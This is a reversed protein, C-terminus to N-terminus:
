EPEVQELTLQLFVLDLWRGFKHGVQRFHAVQVFGLREHFRLSGVNDADVGAIMVHYGGQRAQEILPGMLATGLGTAQVDPAIYVSHEVTHRYGPKDRFRGYTSWGVVRGGVEAVLVPWGEQMRLDFWVLRTELAQPELDYSATTHLVAHNYIDLIAPVDAHVAPRVQAATIATM